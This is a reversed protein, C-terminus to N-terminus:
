SLLLYFGRKTVPLAWKVREDVECINDSLSVSLSLPFSSPRHTGHASNAGFDAWELEMVLLTQKQRSLLIDLLRGAVRQAGGTSKWMKGSKFVFNYLKSKGQSISSGTNMKVQSRQQYSQNVYETQGNSLPM